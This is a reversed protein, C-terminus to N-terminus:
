IGYREHLLGQHHREHGAIVWAAARASMTQGSATGRRALQQDSLGGFLAVTAARVAVFEDVLDTMSRADAGANPAWMNEDFSPMPTTDGRAFTLARYAFVRETDAIHCLVELVSWKGPAYRFHWQEEPLTRLLTATGRGQEALLTLLNGDPVQSIYRSYYPAFEDAAPRPIPM